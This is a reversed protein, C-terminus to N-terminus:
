CATAQRVARLEPWPADARKAKSVAFFVQMREGGCPRHSIEIDLRLDEGKAFPNWTHVKGAYAEKWGKPSALPHLVVAAHVPPEELKRARAVNEMLGDFYVALGRELHTAEMPTAKIDWLFVYTFGQESSFNEWQPSFRVHETGEYPISPAFVLPFPFTEKRWEAPAAIPQALAALCTWALFFALARM